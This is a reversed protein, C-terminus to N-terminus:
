GKKMKEKRRRTSKCKAADAIARSRNYEKSRYMMETSKMERGVVVMM